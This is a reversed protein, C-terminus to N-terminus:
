IINKKKLKDLNYQTIAGINILRKLLDDSIKEKGNIIKILKKALQQEKPFVNRSIRPFPPFQPNNKTKYEKNWQEIASVFDGLSMNIERTKKITKKVTNTNTEIFKREAHSHVGFKNDGIGTEWFSKHHLKKVTQMYDQILTDKSKSLQELIAFESKYLLGRDFLRHHTPCLLFYNTSYNDYLKTKVKPSFGRPIIHALDFTRSETCLECMFVANEQVHIISKETKYLEIAQAVKGISINYILNCRPCQIDRPQKLKSIDFKASFKCRDCIFRDSTIIKKIGYEAFCKKCM